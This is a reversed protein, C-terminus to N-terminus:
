EPPDFDLVTISQIRRVPIFVKGGDGEDSLFSFGAGEEPNMKVVEELAQYLEELAEPTYEEVISYHTESGTVVRLQHWTKAPEEQASM